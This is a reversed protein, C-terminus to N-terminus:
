VYMGLIPTWENTDPLVSVKITEAPIAKPKKAHSRGGNDDSSRKRKEGPMKVPIHSEFNSLQPRIRQYTVGTYIQGELVQANIKNQATNLRYARFCRTM